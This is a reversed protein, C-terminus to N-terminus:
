GGVRRWVASAARQAEKLVAKEDLTKVKGGEVVLEGDVVVHTVDGPGCVEAALAAPDDSPLLSARAADLAVVALDAKKGVEISGVSALLGLARAGDRTATRLVDEPGLIDGSGADLRASLLLARMASFLDQGVGDTGLALPVKGRLLAAVPSVTGRVADARPTVAVQAASERLGGIEEEKLCAGGALLANSRLLDFRRLWGFLDGGARTRLAEAEGAFAGLHFHLGLKRAEAEKAVRELTEDSCVAPSFVGLRATVRGGGDPEAGEIESLAAELASAGASAELRPSAGAASAAPDAEALAETLVVRVGSERVAAALRGAHRDLIGLCTVGSKLAELFAARALAEAEGAEAEAFLLRAARQLGSRTAQGGPAGKLLGGTVHVHANVLGPMVVHGRANLVKGEAFGMRKLDAPKGVAAIRGDRIAVAGGSIAEGGADMPLLTGNQILLDTM